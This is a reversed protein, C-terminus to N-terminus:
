KNEKMIKKFATAIKKLLSTKSRIKDLNVQLALSILPAPFNYQQVVFLTKNENEEIILKCVGSIDRVFTGDVLSFKQSILWNRFDQNVLQIGSKLKQSVEIRYVSTRTEICKDFVEAYAKDAFKHQIMAHTLSHVAQICNKRAVVLRHKMYEISKTDVNSIDDFPPVNRKTTYNRFIAVAIAWKDELSKGRWAKSYKKYFEPWLKMAPTSIHLPMTKLSPPLPKGKPVSVTAAAQLPIGLEKQLFTKVEDPTIYIEYEQYNANNYPDVPLNDNTNQSNPDFYTLNGNPTILQVSPKPNSCDQNSISNIKNITDDISNIKNITDDVSNVKNIVDNVTDQNLQPYQIPIYNGANPQPNLFNLGCCCDDGFNIDKLSNDGIDSTVIKKNHKKCFRWVHLSPCINESGRESSPQGCLPCSNEINAM